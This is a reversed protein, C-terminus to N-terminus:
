RTERLKLLEEEVKDIHGRLKINLPSSPYRDMLGRLIDLASVLLEERKSPDDAKKAKLFLTAARNRERNILKEVAREKLRVTEPSRGQEKELYEIRSIAEQYQESEILRAATNLIGERFSARMDKQRGYDLEARDIADLARDVAAMEPGEELGIRYRLLLIKAEQFRKNQVLEEVENFLGELAKFEGALTRIGTSISGPRQPGGKKRQRMDTLRNKAGRGMSERDNLKELLRDYSDSARRDQGLALRWDLIASHLYFVDPKGRIERLVAEGIRIAEETLGRKALSLAFYLGIEPTLSEKGYTEELEMCGDIVGQHDGRMHKDIIEERKLSFEHMVKSRIGEPTERESFYEMELQSLANFLGRAAFSDERESPPRKKLVSYTDILTEAMERERESLDRRQLLNSLYEIRRDLMEETVSAPPSPRSRPAVERERVPQVCSGAVLLCSLLSLTVIRNWIYM